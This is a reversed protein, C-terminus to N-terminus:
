VVTKVLVFSSSAQTSHSFSLVCMQVNTGKGLASLRQMCVRKTQSVDPWRAFVAPLLIKAKM